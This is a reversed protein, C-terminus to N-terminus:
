SKLWLRKRMRYVPETEGSGIWVAELDVLWAGPSLDEVGGVYRGPEVEKLVLRRDFEVTSPRGLTGSIRLGSVPTGDTKRLLFTLGAAPDLAAEATWGLQAQRDGAAIRDNYQLGKRYPENAVVGSYTSLAAYIFIGNAFFVAGFFAIVAMLVNRGSLGQREQRAPMRAGKMSMM